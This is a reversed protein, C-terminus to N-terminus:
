CVLTSKQMSSAGNATMMASAKPLPATVAASSIQVVGAQEARRGTRAACGRTRVAAGDKRSASGGSGARGRGRLRWHTQFPLVCGFWLEAAVQDGLTLIFPFFLALSCFHPKGSTLLPTGQCAASSSSQLSLFRQHPASFPSAMVFSSLYAPSSSSEAQGQCLALCWMQGRVLHQKLDSSNLDVLVRQKGAGVCRCLCLCSVQHM